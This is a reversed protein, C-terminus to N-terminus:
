SGTLYIITNIQNHNNDEVLAGLNDEYDTENDAQFRLSGEVVM